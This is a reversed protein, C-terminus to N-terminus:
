SRELRAADALAGEVVHGHIEITEQLGRAELGVLALAGMAKKVPTSQLKKAPRRSRTPKRSSETKSAAMQAEVPSPNHAM